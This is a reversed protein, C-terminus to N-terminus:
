AVKNRQLAGRDVKGNATVPLADVVSVRQPVMAAPLLQELKNRVANGVAPAGPDGEVYLHLAPGSASDVVVAVAAKVGAVDGAISEVEGLEVRNGNIKVQTDRRHAFELDGDVMRVIDGTAYMRAGPEASWPDPVFRDGTLRPMGRYGAAVAPGGIYLQGYVGSTVPTGDDDLVYVRAHALARGIYAAASDIRWATAWVTAETPGYVNFAVAPLSALRAALAQPLVDGGCLLSQEATLRLGADLLLRWGVPTAQVLSPQVSNVLSALARPKPLWTDPAVVCTGGTTLPLFIELGAIDFSLRTSFLVRDGASPPLLASMADLFHVLNQHTVEVGKPRGTSGSTYIVYVLGDCTSVSEPAAGVGPLYLEAPAVVPVAIDALAASFAPDAVVCSVGADRAMFDLRAAPYHGDLPVYAAGASLVGLLVALM